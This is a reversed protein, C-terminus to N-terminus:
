HLSNSHEPDRLVAERLKSIFMDLNFRRAELSPHSGLVVCSAMLLVGIADSSNDFTETLFNLVAGAGAQLDATLEVYAIDIGHDAPIDM